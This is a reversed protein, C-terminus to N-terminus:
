RGQFAVQALAELDEGDKKKHFEDRELSCGRYGSSSKELRDGHRGFYVAISLNEIRLNGGRM